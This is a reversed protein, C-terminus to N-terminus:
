PVEFAGLDWKANVPRRRQDVDHDNTSTMVKDICCMANAPALSLRFNSPSLFEPNADRLTNPNAESPGTAVDAM